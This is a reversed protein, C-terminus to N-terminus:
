KGFRDMFQSANLREIGDVMDFDEDESVIISIGSEKMSSIHLADRPDLETNEHIDVMRIIVSRQITIWKMPMSLLAKTIRIADEKGINKKLVWIVEDVVLFSALFSISKSHILRIIERCNEGLRGEDMAAFIFINSDVYL